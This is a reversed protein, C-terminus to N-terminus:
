VGKYGKAVKDLTGKAKGSVDAYNASSQQIYNSFIPTRNVDVLNRAKLADGLLFLSSDVSAAIKRSTQIAQDQARNADTQARSYWEMGKKYMESQQVSADYSVVRPKRSGM